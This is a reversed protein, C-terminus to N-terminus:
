FFLMEESALLCNHASRILWHRVLTTNYRILRFRAKQSLQQYCPNDSGIEAQSLHHSSSKAVGIRALVDRDLRLASVLKVQPGRVGLKNLHHPKSSLDNHSHEADGQRGICEVARGHHRRPVSYFAALRHPARRLAVRALIATLCHRCHMRWEYLWRSQCDSGGRRLWRNECYDRM